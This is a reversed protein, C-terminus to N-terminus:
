FCTFHRGFRGPIYKICIRQTWYTKNGKVVIHKGKMFETYNIRFGNTFNFHIKDYQKQNWLYEARLRM